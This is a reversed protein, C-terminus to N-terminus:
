RSPLTNTSYREGSLRSRMLLLSCFACRSASRAQHASAPQGTRTAQWHSANASAASSAPQASIGSRTGNPAVRLSISARRSWGVAAEARQGIAAPQPIRALRGLLLNVLQVQTSVTRQALDLLHQIGAPQLAELDVM